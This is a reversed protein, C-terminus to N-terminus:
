GIGDCLFNRAAVEQAECTVGRTGEVNRKDHFIRSLQEGSEIIQISFVLNRCLPEAFEAVFILLCWPQVGEPAAMPEAFIDEKVLWLVSKM